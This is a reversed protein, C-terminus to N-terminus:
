TVDIFSDITILALMIVGIALKGATGWLRGWLAGKGIALREAGTRGSEGIYAGTFAGIAGGCVAAIVSGIVPIPVGLIAGGLSGAIAGIIAYIAGKRSGGQKATGAAGAAFEIIEGFVALCFIIFLVTWSIRPHYHDPLLFVYCGTLIVMIWNGPVLFLNAACAVANALLLLSAYLYVAQNQWFEWDIEPM